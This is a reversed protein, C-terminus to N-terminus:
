ILEISNKRAFHHLNAKIMNARLYIVRDMMKNKRIKIKMEIKMRKKMAKQFSKNNNIRKKYAQLFTLFIEKDIL